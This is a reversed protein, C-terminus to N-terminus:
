NREIEEREPDSEPLSADRGGSKGGKKQQLEDLYALRGSSVVLKRTAYASRRAPGEEQAGIGDPHVSESEGFM